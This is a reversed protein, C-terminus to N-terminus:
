VPVRWFSRESKSDLNGKHSPVVPGEFIRKDFLSATLCTKQLKSFRWQGVTIAKHSNMNAQYPKSLLTTIHILRLSEDPEAMKVPLRFQNEPKSRLMDFPKSFISFDQFALDSDLNSEFTSAM